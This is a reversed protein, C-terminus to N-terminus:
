WTHATNNSRCYQVDKNWCNYQQAIIFCCPQEHSNCVSFTQISPVIMNGTTLMGTLLNNCCRQSFLTTVANNDHSFLMTSLTTWAPGVWRQEHQMALGVNNMSALEVNIISAVEVSNMSALEVNNIIALEVNNMSALEVNNMIALEVNNMSALEVNNM